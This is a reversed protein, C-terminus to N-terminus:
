LRLLRASPSRSHRAQVHRRVHVQIPHVGGGDEGFGGLGDGGDDALGLGYARRGGGQGGKLVEQQNFEMGDTERNHARKLEMWRYFSGDTLGKRRSLKTAEGRRKGEGNAGGGGRGGRGMLDRM